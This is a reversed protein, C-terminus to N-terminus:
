YCDGTIESQAPTFESLLRYKIDPYVDIAYGGYKRRSPWWRNALWDAITDRIPHDLPLV